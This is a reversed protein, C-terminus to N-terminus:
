PPMMVNNRLRLLYTARGVRLILERTLLSTKHLNLLVISLAGNLVTM